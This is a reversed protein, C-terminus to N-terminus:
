VRIALQYKPNDPTLGPMEEGERLWYHWHLQHPEAGWQAKFRYTSAEVSSRGFDFTTYGHDSSYELLSWYLLM